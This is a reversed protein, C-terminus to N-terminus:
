VGREVGDDQVGAGGIASRELLQLQGLPLPLEEGVYVEGDEEELPKHLAYPATCADDEGSRQHGDLRVAHRERVADGLRSHMGQGLVEDLKKGGVADAHVGDCRAEDVGIPV